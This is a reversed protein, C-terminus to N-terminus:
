IATELHNESYSRKVHAPVSSQLDFSQYNRIGGETSRRELEAQWVYLFPWKITIVMVCHFKLDPDDMVRELPMPSFLFLFTIYAAM